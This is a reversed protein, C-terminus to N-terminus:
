SAANKLIAFMAVVCISRCLEIKSRAYWQRRRADTWNAVRPAPLIDGARPQLLIPESQVAPDLGRFEQTAEDVRWVTAICQISGLGEECLREVCSRM